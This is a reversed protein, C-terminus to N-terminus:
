RRVILFVSVAVLALAAPITADELTFDAGIPHGPGAAKQRELTLREKEVSLEAQRTEQTQWFIGTGLAAVGAAVIPILPLVGLGHTMTEGEKHARAPATTPQQVGELGFPSAPAM